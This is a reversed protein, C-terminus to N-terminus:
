GKQEKMLENWNELAENMFEMPDDYYSEGYKFGDLWMKHDDSEEPYPNETKSLGNSHADIGDLWITNKEKDLM